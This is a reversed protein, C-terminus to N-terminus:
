PELALGAAAIGLALDRCTCAPRVEQLVAPYPGTAWLKDWGIAFLVKGPAVAIGASGAACCALTRAMLQGRYWRRDARCPLQFSAAPLRRAASRAAAPLPCIQPLFARRPLRIPAHKSPRDLLVLAIDNEETISDYRSHIAVDIAYRLEYSGGNTEFGGIRVQPWLYAQRSSKAGDDGHFCHAATLVISPHILTGACFAGYGAADRRLSAM